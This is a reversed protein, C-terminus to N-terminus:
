LRIVPYVRGHWILELIMAVVCGLALGIVYPATTNREQHQYQVPVQMVYRYYLYRVLETFPRLGLRRRMLLAVALVGYIAAGYLFAWFPYSNWFDIRGGKLAGVAMCFKLDGAKFWGIAFPPFFMGFGIICGIISRMMGNIGDIAFNVVIGIGMSPFTLLNYVKGYRCDTYCAIAIFVLTLADKLLLKILWEEMSAINTVM